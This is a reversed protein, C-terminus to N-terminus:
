TEPHKDSFRRKSAMLSSGNIQVDWLATSLNHRVFNFIKLITRASLSCPRIRSMLIKKLYAKLAENTENLEYSINEKRHDDILALVKNKFARKHTIAEIAFEQLPRKSRRFLHVTRQHKNLNKEKWFFWHHCHGCTNEACLNLILLIQNKKNTWEREQVFFWASM